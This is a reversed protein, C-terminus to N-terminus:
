RRMQWLDLGETNDADHVKCAGGPPKVTSPQGKDKTPHKGQKKGCRGEGSRGIPRRIIRLSELFGFGLLLQHQCVKGTGVPARPALLELAFHKRSRFKLLVGLFMEHQELEIERLAFRLRLSQLLLVFLERVSVVDVGERGDHQQIGFSLLDGGHTVHWASGLREQVFDLLKTLFRSGSTLLRDWLTRQRPAGFLIGASEFVFRARIAPRVRFRFFTKGSIAGLDLMRV